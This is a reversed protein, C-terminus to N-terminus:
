KTWWVGELKTSAFYKTEALEEDFILSRNADVIQVVGGLELRKGQYTIQLSGEQFNPSQIYNRLNFAKVEKGNLVDSPLDFREGSLNFLTIQIPMPNPGQNSVMLTSEFNSNIRYYTAALTHIEPTSTPLFNPLALISATSIEDTKIQSISLNEVKGKVSSLQAAFVFGISLLLFSFLVFRNSKKASFNSKFM